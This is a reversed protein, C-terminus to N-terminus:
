WLKPRSCTSAAFFIPYFLWCQHVVRSRDFCLRYMAKLVIKKTRLLLIRITVFMLFPCPPFHTPMKIFVFLKIEYGPLCKFELTLEMHFYFHLKQIKWCQLFVRALKEVELLKNTMGEISKADSKLHYNNGILQRVSVIIAPNVVLWYDYFREWWHDISLLVALWWSCFDVFM